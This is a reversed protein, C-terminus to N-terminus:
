LATAFGLIPALTGLAFLLVTAGDGLIELLSRWQAAMEADRVSRKVAIQAIALGIQVIVGAIMLAVPSP